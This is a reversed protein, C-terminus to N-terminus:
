LQDGRRQDAYFQIKVWTFGLCNIADALMDGLLSPFSNLAPFYAHMHPSQWHTIGPMIVREIDGFIANWEEGESPATEPLLKGMYGPQVDPFVRRDRINELYDAIYDVMEKGSPVLLVHFLLLNICIKNANICYFNSTSLNLDCPDRAPDDNIIIPDLKLKWIEIQRGLFTTFKHQRSVLSPFAVGHSPIEFHFADIIQFVTRITNITIHKGFVRCRVNCLLYCLPKQIQKARSLDNISFRARPLSCELTFVSQM